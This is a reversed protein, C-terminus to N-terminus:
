HSITGTSDAALASGDGPDIALATPASTLRSAAALRGTRADLRGLSGYSSGGVWVGAPGGAVVGPHGGVAFRTVPGNPAVRVLAGTDPLSVWVDGAPAISVGGPTSGLAITQPGTLASSISRIERSPPIRAAASASASPQSGSRGGGGTSALAVAVAIAVLAVVSAAGLARRKRRRVLSTVAMSGPAPTPATPAPEPVTPASEPVTAVDPVAPHHVTPESAAGSLVTPGATPPERAGPEDLVTPEAKIRERADLEDLAEGLARTLAGASSFREEPRKAMAQRVIQDLREPVEQAITRVSPVPDNVHAFVKAVNTPRDFPLQGSLAEFLMCGFSYIDSAADGKGGSIREPAMYDVTGVLMGTSTMGSQSASRRAIGFDTLYVDEEREDDCPAILVNGPKIDRHVLGRQHAAGLASAVPRLLRVARAPPLGGSSSLMARLDTGEVWRMILYLMGDWEGAEYVPIVHPHDISAALQSERKFRERYSPDEALEPAIAKVAVPRGLVLQTGRYVVGMGGRGAVAELRCGAFTSGPGLSGSM